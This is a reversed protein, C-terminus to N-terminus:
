RRLCRAASWMRAPASCASPSSAPSRRLQADTEQITIKAIHLDSEALDRNAETREKQIEAVASSDRLSGQREAERSLNKFSINAREALAVQRKRQLNLMECDFRAVPAGASVVDGPEAVWELRGAIGATIQTEHRSFVTGAAPVRPAVNTSEVRTVTVSMADPADQALAQSLFLMLLLVIAITRSSILERVHNM